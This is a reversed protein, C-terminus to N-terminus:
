SFIGSCVFLFLETSTEKYQMGNSEWSWPPHEKLKRDLSPMQDNSTSFEFEIAEEM